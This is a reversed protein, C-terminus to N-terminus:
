MEQQLNYNFDIVQYELGPMNELIPFNYYKLYKQNLIKVKIKRSQNVKSQYIRKINQFNM